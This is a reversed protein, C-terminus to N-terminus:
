AAKPRTKIWDLLFVFLGEEDYEAIEGESRVVRFCTGPNVANPEFVDITIESGAGDNVTVTTEDVSHPKVYRQLKSALQGIDSGIEHAQKTREAHARDDANADEAKEALQSQYLDLLKGVFDEM